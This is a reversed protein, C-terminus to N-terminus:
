SMRTVKRKIVGKCSIEYNGEQQIRGRELITNSNHSITKMNRDNRDNSEKSKVKKYSLVYSGGGTLNKKSKHFFNSSNKNDDNDYDEEQIEDINEYSFKKRMYKNVNASNASSDRVREKNHFIDRENVQKNTPSDEEQMEEICDSGQFNSSKRELNLIENKINIFLNGYVNLRIQSQKGM